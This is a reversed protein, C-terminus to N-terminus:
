SVKALLTHIVTRQTSERHIPRGLSFRRSNLQLPSSACVMAVKITSSLNLHKFWPEHTGIGCLDENCMDGCYGLAHAM